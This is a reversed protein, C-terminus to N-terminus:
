RVIIPRGLRALGEQAAAHHADLRVTEAYWARAEDIRRRREQLEAIHFTSEPGPQLQKTAMQQAASALREEAEFLEKARREHEDAAAANELRKMVNVLHAHAERRWPELNLSKQFCQAADRWQGELEHVLGRLHWLEGNQDAGEPMQALAAQAAPLDGLEVLCWVYDVYTLVDGPRQQLAARLLELGQHQDQGLEV